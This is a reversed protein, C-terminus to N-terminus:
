IKIAFTSNMGTEQSESIKIRKLFYERVRCHSNKWCKEESHSLFWKGDDSKGRLCCPAAKLRQTCRCAAEVDTRNMHTDNGSDNNWLTQSRWLQAETNEDNTSNNLSCPSDGCQQYWIGPERFPIETFCQSFIMPYGLRNRDDEELPFNRFITWSLFLTIIFYIFLSIFLYILFAITCTYSTTGKITLFGGIPAHM